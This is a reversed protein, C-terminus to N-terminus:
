TTQALEKIKEFDEPSEISKNNIDLLLQCHGDTFREDKILGLLATKIESFQEQPPQAVGNLAAAGSKASLVELIQGLIPAGQKVVEDSFVKKPKAREDALDKELTKIQFDKQLAALELRNVTAVLTENTLETKQLRQVTPELQQAKSYNEVVAMNLGGNLMGQLGNPQEQNPAMNPQSTPPQQSLTAADVSNVASAQVVNQSVEVNTNNLPKLIAKIPQKAVDKRFDTSSGNKRKLYLTLENRTNSIIDSLKAEVSDIGQAKLDSFTAFNVEWEGSFNNKVAIGNKAKTTVEHIIYKLTHDM